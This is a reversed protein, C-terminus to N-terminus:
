ATEDEKLILISNMELKSSLPHEKRRRELTGLWQGSIIELCIRLVFCWCLSMRGQILGDYMYRSPM